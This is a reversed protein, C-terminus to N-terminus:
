NNAKRTGASDRAGAIGPLCISLTRIGVTGIFNSISVKNVLTLIKTQPMVNAQVDAQLLKAPRKTVRNIRPMHSPDTVAPKM